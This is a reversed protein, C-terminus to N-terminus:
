VGIRWRGDLDLEHLLKALISLKCLDVEKNQFFDHLFVVSVGPMDDYICDPKHRLTWKVLFGIAEKFPLITVCIM